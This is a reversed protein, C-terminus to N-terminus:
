VHKGLKNAVGQTLRDLVIAVFIVSLGAEAATAIDIFSIATLIDLGLGKAGIMSTVVVM